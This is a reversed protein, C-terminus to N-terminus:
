VQTRRTVVAQLTIFQNLNENRLRRISDSCPFGNVAVHVHEDKDRSFAQFEQKCMRHAAEDLLPLMKAPFQSLWWALNACVPM